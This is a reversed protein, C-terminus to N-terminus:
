CVYDGHRCNKRGIDKVNKMILKLSEEKKAMQEDYPLDAYASIKSRVIAVTAEISEPKPIPNALKQAAFTQNQNGRETIKGVIVSIPKERRLDKSTLKAEKIKVNRNKIVLDPCASLREVDDLSEFRVFAFSKRPEKMISVMKLPPDFKKNLEKYIEFDKLFESIGQLCVRLNSNASPDPKQDVPIPTQSPDAVILKKSPSPPNSQHDFTLDELSTVNEQLPLPQPSPSDPAPRKQLISPEPTNSM